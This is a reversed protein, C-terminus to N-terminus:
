VEDMFKKLREASGEEISEFLECLEKYGAPITLSEKNEFVMEFAPDLLKLTYLDSINYGLDNFFNEFVSPMWYWSPGMDFTFGDETKLQRARGGPEANKEFVHVDHGAKSLYCAASLGSFGTGIVAIKSMNFKISSRKSIM